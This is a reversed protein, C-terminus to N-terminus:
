GWIVGRSIFNINPQTQVEFNFKGSLIKLLDANGAVILKEKENLYKLAQELSNAAEIKAKATIQLLYEIETLEAPQQYDFTQIHTDIEKPSHLLTELTITSIHEFLKERLLAKRLIVPPDVEEPTLLYHKYALKQGLRINGSNRALWPSALLGALVPSLWIIQNPALWILASLPLIGAIVYRITHYIAEKWSMLKGARNQTRWGSDRGLLIDFVHHTQILMMMPAYLTSLLLELLFGKTLAKGGGFMQRKNPLILNILWGFFKPLLLLGLAIFFLSQMKKADFTPWDPFLQYAVPFYEPQIFLAQATILMGVLMMLMWIPSMVYSLIGIAFHVRNPWRLGKATIIGLHQLNGQAWRRERGTFDELTPPLGEYSGSLDPDMRVAWGRRCLLAAEVFDHSLIHGGIPVRGKLEPLGCSEAFARSRIIANHGWYNGDAGQWMAVGRAIVKGYLAGAFQISRALLSEGGILRPMSQLLGLRPSADMRAIMKVITEASMLSDADLMLIYDYRAGWRKIFEEINGSKRAINRRRRRYWVPLPSKQRLLQFAVTERIWADANQTDSLIFIECRNAVTTTSLSESIALLAAGTMKPDEGYVPMLIAVKGGESSAQNERRIMPILGALTGTASFSVWYFTISFLILLIWQLFTHQKGMAAEMQWVGYTGILLAGIFALIRGLFVRWSWPLKARIPKKRLNQVPMSLPAEPPIASIRSDM